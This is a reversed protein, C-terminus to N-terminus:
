RHQSGPLPRRSTGRWARYAWVTMVIVATWAAAVIIGSLLDPDSVFAGVAVLSAQGPVSAILSAVVFDRQGVGFAGAGYNLPWYPLGPLLRLMYVAQFGAASLHKEVRPGYSGILKSVTERGLGRAAWYAGWCGIMVGIVSLISGEVVGFLVGGTIAMITVPIPTMAVVAYLGVFGFRAGWGLSEIWAHLTGLSPLSVNFAMWVMGLVALVLAGGRLIVGWDPGDGARATTRRDGRDADGM